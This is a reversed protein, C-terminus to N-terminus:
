REDRSRANQKRGQRCYIEKILIKVKRLISFEESNFQFVASHRLKLFM